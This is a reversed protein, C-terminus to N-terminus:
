GNPSMSSRREVRSMPPIGTLNRITWGHHIKSEVDTAIEHILYHNAESVVRYVSHLSLRVTEKLPSETSLTERYATFDTSDQRNAAEPRTTIVM